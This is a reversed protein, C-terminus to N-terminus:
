IKKMNLMPGTTSIIEKMVSGLIGSATFYRNNNEDVKPKELMIFFVYEPDTMPAVAVFSLIMSHKDYKGNKLQIATGTKGGVDYEDIYASKGGGDNIVQRMIDKFIEHQENPLYYTRKKHEEIENLKIFTPRVPYNNVLSALASVYQLPSVAIAYGYSISVRNTLNWRAPYLPKAIEPIEIDLKDLLGLKKFFLIHERTPIDEMLKAFCVNSSINTMEFLNLAGGAKEKENIDHITYNEDIKYAKREYKKYPSIGVKLALGASFLKFISGLEYNGFSYRNFKEKDKCSNYHNYDCDPLSVASILEGTKVKMIIGVAGISKTEEIRKQIINRVVNQIKLDISLQLPLNNKTKIYSNMSKEISSVCENANPCYGIISNVSSTKYFRKQAEEFIIGEIENDLLSQKQQINLGKKLFFKKKEDKRDVIREILKAPVSSLINQVKSMNKYVDDMRSPQLYLDYIEENSVLIEGNRDLINMRKFDDTIALSFLKNKYFNNQLILVFKAIFLVVMLILALIFIDAVKKNNTKKTSISKYHLKNIKSCLFKSINVTKAILTMTKRFAM